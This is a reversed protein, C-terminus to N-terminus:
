KFLKLLEKQIIGLIFRMEKDIFFHDGSIIHKEFRNATQEGWKNLKLESVEIDDSGGFAVIPCSLPSGPKYSYNECMAFDAKLIPIYIQMLEMNEIVEPPTGNM